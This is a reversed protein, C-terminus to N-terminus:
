LDVQYSLVDAAEKNLKDAKKNLIALDDFERKKRARQVIYEKVAEEIFQSRNIRDGAAEDISRM